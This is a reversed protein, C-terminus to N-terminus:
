NDVINLSTYKEEFVFIFKLAVSPLFLHFSAESVVSVSLFPSSSLANLFQISCFSVFSLGSVETVSQM